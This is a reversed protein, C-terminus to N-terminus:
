AVPAARCAELERSRSLCAASAWAPLGLILIFPETLM